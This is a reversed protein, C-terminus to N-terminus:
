AEMEKRFPRQALWEDVSNRAFRLNGDILFAPIQGLQAMEELRRGPIRLYRATERLTMVCEQTKVAEKILGTLQEATLNLEFKVPFATATDNFEAVSLNDLNVERREGKGTTSDNERVNETVAKKSGHLHSSLAVSEHVIRPRSTTFNEGSKAAHRIADALNV